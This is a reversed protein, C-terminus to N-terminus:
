RGAVEGSTDQVNENEQQNGELRKPNKYFGDLALGWLNCEPDVDWRVIRVPYRVFIDKVIESRFTEKINVDYFAVWSDGSEVYVRKDTYPREPMEQLARTRNLEHRKLRQEYDRELEGKFRPTIYCSLRNIQKKYDEIGEVPWNNMQQFIYYGFAYVNFPHREQIGRTSGSRLDPPIDIKIHEPAAKWGAISYFLAIALIGILIRLTLIHSDRGDLAKKLRAM